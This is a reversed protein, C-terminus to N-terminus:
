SPNITGDHHISQEMMIFCHYSYPTAPPLVQQTGRRLLASSSFIGVELM